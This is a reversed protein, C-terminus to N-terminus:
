TPSLLVDGTPLVRMGSATRLLLYGQDSLGAFHGELRSEGYTVTLATGVPHARALWARHVPEQGERRWTEHWAALASLLTTAFAEPAPPTIGADALCATDRGPVAPAVALNAGMGLILWRVDGAPDLATDILIGALKRGRLLVDNPWKLLLGSPGPLATAATEFLALGALLPWMGAEALGLTPRLLVSLSLNGTPSQWGRGRSGRGSTQRLALVALGAGEGAAALNALHDSTSGLEPYVQLRWGAIVPTPSETM